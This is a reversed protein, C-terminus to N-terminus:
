QFQTTDYGLKRISGRIVDVSTKEPDYRVLVKDTLYSVSVDAIGDMKELKKEIVRSCYSCGTNSISLVVKKDNAMSIGVCNSLPRYLILLRQLREFM